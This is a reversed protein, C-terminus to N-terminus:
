PLKSSQLVGAAEAEASVRIRLDCSRGGCKCSYLAINGTTFRKLDEASRINQLEEDPVMREGGCGNCILMIERLPYISVENV